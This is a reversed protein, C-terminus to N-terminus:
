EVHLFTYIFIFYFLAINVEISGNKVLFTSYDNSAANVVAISSQLDQKTFVNQQLLQQFLDIQTTVNPGDVMTQFVGTGGHAFNMGNEIVSQNVSNRQEYPIPSTINM